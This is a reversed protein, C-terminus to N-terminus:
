GQSWRERETVARALESRVRDPEDDVEHWLWRDVRWGLQALRRDRARDREAVEPLLHPPGDIEVAYRLEVLATDVEALPVGRRPDIVPHPACTFRADVARALARGRREVESHSLTGRLHDLAEALRRRGPFRNRQGLAVEVEDLIARRMATARALERVLTDADPVEAAHDAFARSSVVVPLGSRQHVALRDFQRTRHIRAPLDRRVKTPAPVVLSPRAPPQSRLGWLWLALAGTVLPGGPLLAVLSAADRLVDPPAGRPLWEGRHRPAWDSARLRNTLTSGPVGAARAEQRTLV